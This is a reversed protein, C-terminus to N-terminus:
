HVKVPVLRKYLKSAYPLQRYLGNNADWFDQHFIVENEANVRLQSIGFSHMTEVSGYFKLNYQMEWHIYIDSGVAHSNVINVSFNDVKESLSEFYDRLESKNSFVGLTDNFYLDDAYLADVMETIETTGFANFTNVFRQVLATLNADSIAQGSVTKVADVYQPTYSTVKKM